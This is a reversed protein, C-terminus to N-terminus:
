ALQALLKRAELQDITDAGDRMRQLALGLIASAEHAAGAAYELRAWAVAARLALSAAGQQEATRVADRFRARAGDIDGLAMMAAGELRVLDVLLAREGHREGWAHADRAVALAEAPQDFLLHADALLAAIFTHALGAGIAQWHHWAGNM